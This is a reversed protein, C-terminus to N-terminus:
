AVREVADAARTPLPHPLTPLSASMETKPRPLPERRPEMRGTLQEFALVITATLAASMAIYAGLGVFFPATTEPLNGSALRRGLDHAVWLLSPVSFMQVYNMQDSQALLRISFFMLYGGGVVLCVGVTSLMARLSNRCALSFLLGMASGFWGIVTFVVVLLAVSLLQTPRFWAGLLWIVIVALLLWRGAYLNGLLKGTVIQFRSVPLSLLTDWTNRERESTVLSAARSALWLLGACSVLAGVQSSFEFYGRSGHTVGAWFASATTAILGLVILTLTVRGLPGLREAAREAFMEKWAIPQATWMPLRWYGLARRAGRGGELMARNASRLCLVAFFVCVAAVLMQNRVLLLTSAWLDRQRTANGFLLDSLNSFPNAQVLLLRVGTLWRDHAIQFWNSSNRWSQLALPLLLLGFTVLYASAVAPRVRASWVSLLLSIASVTILTSLTTLFVAALSAPAIGGMIMAAALVPLGALVIFLLHMLRIALKGVVIEGSTLTTTFLHDLIGRERDGAIAGAVIAPPILVVALLQPWLFNTFFNAAFRSLAELTVLDGQDFLREYASWLTWSLLAVYGARVALVWPPRATTVLELRFLPGLM